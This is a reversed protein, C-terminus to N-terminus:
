GQADCSCDSTIDSTFSGHCMYVPRTVHLHTMDCILRGKSTAVATQFFYTNASPSLSHSLPLPPFTFQLVCLPLFPVCKCFEDAIYSIRSTTIDCMHILWTVCIFADRRVHAHTMNCMHPVNSWDSIYSIRWPDTGNASTFMYMCLYIHICVCIYMLMYRYIYVDIYICIFTCINHIYM